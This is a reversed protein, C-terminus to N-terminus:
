QMSFVPAQILRTQIIKNCYFIKQSISLIREEEIFTVGGNTTHLITGNRGVALGNNSDTFSVGFLRSITGTTQKIWNTGGNTTRLIVGNGGVATGNNSDIFSVGYLWETTGSTQVIWNSGGNTTRLITGYYGVAWGFNDNIFKVSFLPNGQPLPNQWFWQANLQFSITLLFAFVLVIKKM